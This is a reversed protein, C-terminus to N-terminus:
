KRRREQISKALKSLMLVTTDWDVCGDTISTGYKLDKLDKPIKQTGSNINSEIMVGFISKNGNSIQSCIDDSVDKQKTYDKCSNGHSCDIMIKSRSGSCKLLEEVSSVSKKDFNTGKKSGRLIIHTSNNGMTRTIAAVGDNTVGLFHHVNSSSKIADIAININGSTGNKFGVPFSLGSALERHIQSETTRAGIAGWSICDSIFQPSITDLLEVAVPIGLRTIECLLGRAIELGKNIEFSGDMLPDNILGKWGITTRPKEFYTRMIICLDSKLDKAILYLRKAYDIASIPDHISCPGVIVLLRDDLGNIINSAEIRSKKITIISEDSLPIKSGLLRPTILQKYCDIRNDSMDNKKSM